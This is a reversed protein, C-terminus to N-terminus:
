YICTNNVLCVYIDKQKQIVKASLFLTASTLEFVCGYICLSKLARCIAIKATCEQIQGAVLPKVILFLHLFICTSTHVLFLHQFSM